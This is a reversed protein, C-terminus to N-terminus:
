AQRYGYVRVKINSFAVASTLQFGDYATAQAHIGSVQKLGFGATNGGHPGNTTITTWQTLAPNIIDIIAGMGITDARLFLDFSTGTTTGAVTLATSTYLAQTMSGYAYSTAAPVTAARLRLLCSTSAATTRYDSIVIRYADYASTFVNDISIVTGSTASNEALFVMGGNNLYVNVDASTLTENTGFTKTAM